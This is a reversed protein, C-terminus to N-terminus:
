EEFWSITNLFARARESSPNSVTKDDKTRIVQKLKDARVWGDNNEAQWEKGWSGHIRVLEIPPGIQKGNEMKRVTKRGTLVFCHNDCSNSLETKAYCVSSIVIPKKENLLKYIKQFVTDLSVVKKDALDSQDPFHNARIKKDLFIGNCKKNQGYQNEFLSYYIFSNFTKAKLANGLGQITNQSGFGLNIRTLLELCEPCKLIDAEALTGKEKIAVFAVELERWFNNIKNQDYKFNEVFQDFPACTESFFFQKGGSTSISNLVEFPKIGNSTTIEGISSKDNKGVNDRYRLTSLVSIRESDPNKNCNKIKKQKCNYFEALVTPCFTQCLPTSDQSRIRPLENEPIFSEADEGSVTSFFIPDNLKNKDVDDTFKAPILKEGSSLQVEDDILSDTMESQGKSVSIRLGFDFLLVLFIFYPKLM